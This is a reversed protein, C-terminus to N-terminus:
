QKRVHKGNTRGDTGVILFLVFHFCHESSALGRTQGLPDNIVGAKDNMAEEMLTLITITPTYIM